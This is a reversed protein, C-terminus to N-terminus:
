EGSDSLYQFDQTGMRFVEGHRLAFPAIQHSYGKQVTGVPELFVEAVDVNKKARILAHELDLGAAAIVVDCTSGSGIMLANKNFATLDIETSIDSKGIEWHRLTGSVPLPMATKRVKAVGMMGVLVIALLGGGLRIPIRCREGLGPVDVSLILTNDPQLLVNDSGEMFLRLNTSGTSLAEVAQLSLQIEQEGIKLKIEKPDIVWEKTTTLRLIGDHSSNVSITAVVVKPQSFCSTPLEVRKVSVTALPIVTVQFSHKVETQYAVGLYMADQTSFLVQYEGGENPIFKAIYHDGKKTMEIDQVKGSPSIVKAHLQPTGSLNSGKLHVKLEVADGIVEVNGIPADVVIEPFPTVQVLTSANVPVAGKWGRVSIQYNGTQDTGPFTRTYNGDYAFEDGHTGDDYFRDLSVQKGDPATIIATFDAEGIIKTFKGPVTEELLNVVIPMVTGSPHVNRPSIVEARLRSRLIAWFQIEGVGQSHFIYTGGMPKELTSLTFSPSLLEGVDVETGAPTLIQVSSTKPKTVIITASEIYPTLSTDIELTGSSSYRKGGIVTRDKIKGLTQLFAGILDSSNNVYVLSGDTVQVLESLFPTQSSRTLAIAMVPVELDNALQLTEQEYSAYPNQIEPKGDTLLVIVVKRNEQSTTSILGAAKQLAAKVDTYGEAKSSVLDDLLPLKDLPTKGAVELGNTLVQTQTSFLVLGFEDGPDLLGIIVQAGSFRLNEPDNNKMSGSNDLVLIVTMKESASAQVNSLPSFVNISLVLCLICIFLKKM